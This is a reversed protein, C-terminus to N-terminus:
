PSTTARLPGTIRAHVRRSAPRLGLAVARELDDITDVDARIRAPAREALSAYGAALHRAFSGTGFAPRHAIGASATLLTTGTGAADPVVGLPVSAAASLTVDLSDGDLAPLDGLLVARPAAVPCSALGALIAGALSAPASETLVRAGMQEFVTRAAEATVVVVEAALRSELAAHVTDRAFARALRERDEDPLALRSKSPATGRVPIVIRWQQATGPGPM